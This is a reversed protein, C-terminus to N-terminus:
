TFGAVKLSSRTAGQWGSKDAESFRSHRSSVLMSYAVTLLM